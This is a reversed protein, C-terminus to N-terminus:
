VKKHLFGSAEVERRECQRQCDRHQKRYRGARLRRPWLGRRVNGTFPAELIVIAHLIQDLLALCELLYSGGPWRHVGIAPEARGGTWPRGVHEDLGHILAELLLLSAHDTEKRGRRLATSRHPHRRAGSTHLWTRCSCLP